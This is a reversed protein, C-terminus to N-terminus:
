TNFQELGWAPLFWPEWAPLFWLEGSSLLGTRLMGALLFWPEWSRLIEPGTGLVAGKRRSISFKRYPSGEM